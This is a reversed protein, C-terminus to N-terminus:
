DRPHKLPRGGSQVQTCLSSLHQEEIASRGSILKLQTVAAAVQRDQMDGFRAGINCANQGRQQVAYRGAIADMTVV